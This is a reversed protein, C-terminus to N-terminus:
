HREDQVVLNLSPDILDRLSEFQISLVNRRGDGGREGEGGEKIGFGVLGRVGM